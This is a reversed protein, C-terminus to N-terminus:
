NNSIIIFPELQSARKLTTNNYNNLLGRNDLGNPCRKYHPNTTNGSANKKIEKVRLM